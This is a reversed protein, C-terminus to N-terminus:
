ISHYASMTGYPKKRTVKYRTGYIRLQEFISIAQSANPLNAKYIIRSRKNVQASDQQALAPDRFRLSIEVLWGYEIQPVAVMNNCFGKNKKSSNVLPPM